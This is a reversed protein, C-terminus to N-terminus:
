PITRWETDKGLMTEPVSQCIVIVQTRAKARREQEVHWTHATMAGEKTEHHMSKYGGCSCKAVYGTRHHGKHFRLSPRHGKM